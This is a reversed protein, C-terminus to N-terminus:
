IERYVTQRVAVLFRLLSPRQPKEHGVSRDAAPRGYATPRDHGAPRGGVSRPARRVCHGPTPLRQPGRVRDDVPFRRVDRGGNGRELRAVGLCRVARGNRRALRRSSRRDDRPLGSQQRHLLTKPLLRGAAPVRCRATRVVVLLGRDSPRGRGGYEPVRTPSRRAPDTRPEHERRSATRGNSYKNIFGFARIDFFVSGFLVVFIIVVAALVNRAISLLAVGTSLLM